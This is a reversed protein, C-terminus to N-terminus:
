GLHLYYVLRMCSRRLNVLIQQFSFQSLVSVCVFCVGISVVPTDYRSSNRSILNSSIPVRAVQRWTDSVKPAGRLDFRLFQLYCEKRRWAM